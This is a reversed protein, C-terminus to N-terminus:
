YLAWQPFSGLAPPIAIFFSPKNVAKSPKEMEAAALWVFPTVVGVGRAVGAAFSCKVTVVLVTFHPGGGGSM